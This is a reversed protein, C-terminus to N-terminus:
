KKVYRDALETIRNLRRELDECEMKVTEENNINSLRYPKGFVVVARSFPLPIMYRDWSRLSISKLSSATLPIIYAEMKKALYIAGPKVKNPPGKPGDVTFAINCGSKMQRVADVLARVPSKDSSGQVIGFGFKKLVHTIILGDRSPSVMISINRHGMYYALIFFRGHWLAYILRKGQKRLVEVPKEGVTQIKLTNGLLFMFIRATGPYINQYLISIIRKNKNM